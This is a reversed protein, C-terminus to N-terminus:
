RHGDAFPPVLTRLMALTEPDTSHLVTGTLGRTLLVKYTNRILDAFEAPSAKSVSGDRSAARVARWGDGRWVLDPGLITGNWAYEFGQATYICGIQGFGGSETAWLSSAPAGRKASESKLNWPRRWDGIVVDDVLSGDARPESWPWCFGATMRATYGAEHQKRLHDELERPTDAIHLEYDDTAQWRVPGGRLLGLLRLVWHEYARSGGCRFQENLNIHRVLCGRAHAAETISRVSGMEGPRVVQHEDLLFVPVRAADILQELQTRDSRFRTSEGPGGRTQRIRHAEDCILVDLGNREATTFSIFYQFLSPLRGNSERVVHKLTTTFSKSGTAHVATRGSRGLVGMLHLAILSKGSGPGGSVVIVEKRDSRRSQDVARKVDSVVVRQEDLLTFRDGNIIERAAMRMLQRGPVAPSTLLDEAESAGSLPALRTRLYEVLGGATTMTFLRAGADTLQHLEEIDQEAANHLYAIGVVTDHEDSLVSTFDRLYDCYGRVQLVPHLLDTDVGPVRCLDGTRPALTAASWQKLEVVVYSPRGTTPHSGALLADVRLSTLPLRREVLVEVDDLDARRLVDALAPLSEGWSHREAPSPWRQHASRYNHALSNVLEGSRHLDSLGRASLRLLPM